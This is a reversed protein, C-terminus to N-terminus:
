PLRTRRKPSRNALGAGESSFSWRVTKLNVVPCSSRDRRYSRQTYPLSGKDCGQRRMRRRRRPVSLQMRGALPFVVYKWYRLSDSSSMRHRCGFAAQGFPRCILPIKKPCQAFEAGVPLCSIECAPKPSTLLPFM